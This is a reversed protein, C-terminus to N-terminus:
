RAAATEPPRGMKQRGPKAPLPTHGPEWVSASSQVGVAYELQLEQLGARFQSDMGYAADALVMEALFIRAGGCPSDSRASNAAQDPVPIEEPVGTKSRRADDSAWSEPLYLQYAM